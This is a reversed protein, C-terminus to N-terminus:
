LLTANTLFSFNTSLLTIIVLLAEAVTIFNDIIWEKMLNKLNTNVKLTSYILLIATRSSHMREGNSNHVRVEIKNSFVVNLSDNSRIYCPTISHLHEQICRYGRSTMTCFAPRWVQVEYSQVRDDTTRSLYFM